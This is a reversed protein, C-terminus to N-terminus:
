HLKPCAPVSSVYDLWKYQINFYQNISSVKTKRVTPFTLSHQSVPYLEAKTLPQNHLDYQFKEIQLFIPAIHNIASGM